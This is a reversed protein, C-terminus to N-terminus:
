NYKCKLTIAFHDSFGSNSSVDYKIPLGQSDKVSGRKVVEFGVYELGISDFLLYSLLVNDYTLFEGDYYYSGDTIRNEYDLYPSFMVGDKARMGDGTLSIISESSDREDGMEDKNKYIDCNYDGIIILNEDRYREILTKLLEMEEEREEKKEEDLRSRLHVGFVFLPENNIYFQLELIYRSNNTKHLNYQSPRIKSLFGVSLDGKGETALGYYIYGCEGLGNDILDALVNNSEIEELIILDSQSLESSIFRVYSEIRNNYKERGYGNKSAFAEFETKNESGDFFCYTNWSSVIFENSQPEPSCSVFLLLFFFFLAVM